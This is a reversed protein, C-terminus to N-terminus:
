CHCVKFANSLKTFNGVFQSTNVALGELTFKGNKNYVIASVTELNKLHETTTLVTKGFVKLENDM